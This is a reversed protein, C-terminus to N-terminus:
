VERGSLASSRTGSRGVILVDFVLGPSGVFGIGIALTAVAAIPSAYDRVSATM